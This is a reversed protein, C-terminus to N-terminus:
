KKEAALISVGSWNEHGLGMLRTASLPMVGVNKADFQYRAELYNECDTALMSFSLADAPAVADSYGEVVIRHSFLSDGFSVVAADIAHKGDESLKDSGNQVRQFLSDARL